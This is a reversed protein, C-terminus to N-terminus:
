PRPARWLLVEGRGESDEGGSVLTTGDPSFTLCHIRGTHGELSAVEAAAAVSWLKVTRDHSASALIKGDPSFAVASVEDLHGPLDVSKGEALDWLRLLQHQHHVAMHDGHATFAVGLAPSDEVQGVGRLEDGNSPDHFRLRGGQPVVLSGDPAFAAWFPGASELQLSLVQRWGAVEWVTVTGLSSAVALLSGDAAFSLTRIEEPYDPSAPGRTRALEQATAYEKARQSVFLRTQIRRSDRDWVYISGDESGAALTHGDVSLAMRSPIAMSLPGTLGPRERGDALGWCRLSVGLDQLHISETKTAGVSRKERVEPTPADSVTILEHGNPTIALGFV